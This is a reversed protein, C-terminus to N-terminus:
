SSSHKDFYRLSSELHKQWYPWEHAGDFEEYIHDIELELLQNHLTRNAELLDDELGCDFRIPPLHHQNKRIADIADIVEDQLAYADLPEEVFSSMEEFRTIASHASIAKFKNSYLAGLRLAGFGGMSLGGICLPSDPGAYPCNERIALPVESVIWEGFDKESHRIYGSGDGWLGDSPMAIIAPCIQAEAVLKKATHHAGGKLAWAWASGYVGHLLIYIPLNTVAEPVDPVYFCIDGRGKLKKSKVTLFRLGDNEFIPDSLQITHFSSM